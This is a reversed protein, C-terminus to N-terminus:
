KTEETLGSIPLRGFEAVKRELQLSVQAVKLEAYYSENVKEALKVLARAEDIKVDGDKVGMMM